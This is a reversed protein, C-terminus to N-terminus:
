VGDSFFFFNEYGDFFHLLVSLAHLGLEARKFNLFARLPHWGM